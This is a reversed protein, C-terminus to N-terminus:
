QSYGIQTPTFRYIFKSEAIPKTNNGQQYQKYPRCKNCQATPKGSGYFVAGCKPCKKEKVRALNAARIAKFQERHIALHEARTVICLNEITDNMHNFDIHHVVYGKPVPGNALEWLYVAYLIWEKPEAVKIWRREVGRREKRVTISGVPLYTVPKSGKKFETDPHYHVGKSGKNHPMQGKKFHGPNGHESFYADSCTSCCFTHQKIKQSKRRFFTIGCQDCTLEIM